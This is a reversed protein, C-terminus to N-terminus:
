EKKKKDEDGQQEKKLKVYRMWCYVAMAFNILSWTIMYSSNGNIRASYTWIFGAALMLVAAIAYWKPSEPKEQKKDNM